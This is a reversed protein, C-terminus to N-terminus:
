QGAGGASLTVLDGAAGVDRGAACGASNTPLWVVRDPKCMAAMEEFCDRVRGNRVPNIISPAPRVIEEVGQSM